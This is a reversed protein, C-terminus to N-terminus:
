SAASSPPSSSHYERTVLPLPAGTRSSTFTIMRAELELRVGNGLLRLFRARGGLQLLDTRERNEWGYWCERDSCSRPPNTARRGSSTVSSFLRATRTERAKAKASETRAIQQRNIEIGPSSNTKQWRWRRQKLAEREVYAGAQKVVARHENLKDEM